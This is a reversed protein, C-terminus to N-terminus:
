KTSKNSIKEYINVNTNSIKMIHKMRDSMKDNVKRSEKRWNEHKNLM